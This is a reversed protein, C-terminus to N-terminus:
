ATLERKKQAETWSKHLALDVELDFPKQLARAMTQDHLWDFRGEQFSRWKFLPQELVKRFECFGPVNRFGQLM